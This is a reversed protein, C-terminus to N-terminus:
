MVERRRRCRPRITRLRRAGRCATRRTTTPSTATRRRGGTARATPISRTWSTWCRECANKTAGRSTRSSAPQGQVDDPWFARASRCARADTSPYRPPWKPSGDISRPGRSPWGSLVSPTGSGGAHGGVWCQLLADFREGNHQARQRRPPTARAPSPSRASARPRRRAGSLVRRSTSPSAGRRGSERLSVNREPREDDMAFLEDDSERRAGQRADDRRPRRVHCEFSPREVGGAAAAAHGLGADRPLERLRGAAAAAARSVGAAVGSATSRRSTARECCSSRCWGM